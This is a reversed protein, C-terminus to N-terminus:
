PEGGDAVAALIDGHCAEPKCWCGLVKGRLERRAAEILDPRSRLYNRYKELVQARDGDRGIKFPNAFKSAKLRRRPSARGIYIDFPEKAINAVTTPM